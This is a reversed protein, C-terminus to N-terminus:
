SSGECKVMLCGLVVHIGVTLAEVGADRAMGEGGGDQIGGFVLNQIMLCEVAHMILFM